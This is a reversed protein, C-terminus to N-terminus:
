TDIDNCHISYMSSKSFFINLGFPYVRLLLLAAIRM